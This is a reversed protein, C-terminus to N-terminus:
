HKPDSEPTRVFAILVLVLVEKEKQKATSEYKTVIEAQKTIQQQLAEVSSSLNVNEKQSILFDSLLRNAEAATESTTELESEM